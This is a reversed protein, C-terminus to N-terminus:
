RAAGTRFDFDKFRIVFRLWDTPQMCQANVRIEAARLTLHESLVRDTLLDVVQYM